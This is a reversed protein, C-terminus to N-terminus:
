NVHVDNEPCSVRLIMSLLTTFIEYIPLRFQLIKIILSKIQTMKHFKVKINQRLFHSEQLYFLWTISVLTM